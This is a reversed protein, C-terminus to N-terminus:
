APACPQPGAQPSPQVMPQVTMSALPQNTQVPIPAMPPAPTAAVTAMLMNKIAEVSDFSHEADFSHQSAPTVASKPHKDYQQQQLFMHLDDITM